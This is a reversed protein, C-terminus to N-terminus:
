RRPVGGTQDTTPGPRRGGVHRWTSPWLLAVIALGAAIPLLLPGPSARWSALLLGFSLLDLVVLAVWAARSGRVLLVWLVLVVVLGLGFGGTGTAFPILFAAARLVGYGWVATPVDWFRVRTMM